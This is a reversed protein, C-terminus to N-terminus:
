RTEPSTREDSEWPTSAEESVKPEAADTEPRAPAEAPPTPTPTDPTPTPVPTTPEPAPTPEPPTPTPTPEPTPAPPETPTQSPTPSVPVQDEHKETKGPKPKTPITEPHWTETVTRGALTQYALIGGMSIGFVLVTALAVKAWPIRIPDKVPEMRATDPGEAEPGDGSQEQPRGLLLPTGPRDAAPIRGLIVTPADHDPRDAQIKGIIVTTEDHDPTAQGPGGPSNVLDSLGSSRTRDPSGAGGTPEQTGLTGDRNLIAMSETGAQGEDGGANEGPNEGHGGWPIVTHQKLQEATRKLYHTYIANGVTSAVSAVAAGIVTGAVGLYSAAVAATVAALAAGAIQPLSLGYKRPEGSM